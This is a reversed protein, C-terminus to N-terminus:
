APVELPPIEPAPQTKHGPILEWNPPFTQDDSTAIMKHWLEQKRKAPTSPKRYEEYHLHVEDKIRQSEPTHFQVEVPVGDPSTLAVNVGNYADGPPWFNKVRATYGRALLDAHATQFATVYEDASTHFTYRVPDSIGAAADALSSGDGASDALIKDAIRNTNEKIRFELGHMTAGTDRAIATIDATIAPEVDHAAAVITAALERAVDQSGPSETTMKRAKGYSPSRALAAQWANSSYRGGWGYDQLKKGAGLKQGSTARASGDVEASTV